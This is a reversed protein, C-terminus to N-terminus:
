SAEAIPTRYSEAQGTLPSQILSHANRTISHWLTLAEEGTVVIDKGNVILLLEIWDNETDEGPFEISAYSVAELLIVRNKLQILM